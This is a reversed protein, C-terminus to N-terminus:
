IRRRPGRPTEAPLGSLDFTVFGRYISNGNSSDGVCTAHDPDSEQCSNDGYFRCASFAFRADPHLRPLTGQRTCAQVRREWFSGHPSATVSFNVLEECTRGAILMSPAKSGSALM